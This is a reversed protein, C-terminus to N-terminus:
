WICLIHVIRFTIQFGGVKTFVSLNHHCFWSAAFFFIKTWDILCHVASFHLALVIKHPFMPQKNLLYQNEESTQLLWHHHYHGERLINVWLGTCHHSTFIAHLFTSCFVCHLFTSSYICSFFFITARHTSTHQLSSPDLYRMLYGVCRQMRQRQLAITNLLTQM